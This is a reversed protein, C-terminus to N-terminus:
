SPFPTTGALKIALAFGAALTGPPNAPDYQPVVIGPGNEDEVTSPQKVKTKLLSPATFLGPQTAM